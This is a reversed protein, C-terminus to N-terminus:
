YEDRHPDSSDLHSVRRSGTDRGNVLEHEAVFTGVAPGRAPRSPGRPLQRPRTLRLSKAHGKEVHSRSREVLVDGCTTSAPQADREARAGIRHDFLDPLAAETAPPTGPERRGVLPPRDPGGPRAGPEGHAVAGFSLRRRELVSGQESGVGVLDEFAERDGGVRDPGLARVDADLLGEGLLGLGHAARDLLHLLRVSETGCRDLHDKTGIEVEEALLRSELLDDLAAEREGTDGAREHEPEERLRRVVVRGEHVVHLGESVHRVDEAVPGVPEARVAGVAGRSGHDKGDASRRGARSSAEM